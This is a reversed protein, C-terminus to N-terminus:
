GEETWKQDKPVCRSCVGRLYVFNVCYLQALMGIHEVIACRLVPKDCDKCKVLGLEERLPDAGFMKM